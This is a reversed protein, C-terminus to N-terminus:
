SAVAVQAGFALCALIDKVIHFVPHVIGLSFREKFISEHTVTGVSDLRELKDKGGAM